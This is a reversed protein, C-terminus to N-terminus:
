SKEGEKEEQIKEVVTLIQSKKVEVVLIQSKRVAVEVMLIRSEKVVVEQIMVVVLIQIM